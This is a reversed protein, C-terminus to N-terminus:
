GRDFAVLFEIKCNKLGGFPGGDPSSINYDDLNVPVAGNVAIRGGQQVADLPFTVSRTVGHITFNGTVSLNIVEGDAPTTALQIPSTLEFTSTPYKDTELMEHYKADHVCDCTVTQMNVVINVASVSTDDITMTGTVDPTTGVVHSTQGVAEDDVSYRAQTGAGVVWLGALDIPAAAAAMPDDTSPAGVAAASVEVADTAGGSLTNPSAGGSAMTSPTMQLDAFSLPKPPTTETARVFVWPVGVLLVTAMVPVGVFWTLPRRVATWVESRVQLDTGLVFLASGVVGAIAALAGLQWLGMAM